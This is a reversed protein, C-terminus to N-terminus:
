LLALWSSLPVPTASSKTRWQICFARPTPHCPRPARPTCRVDKGIHISDGQVVVSIMFMGGGTEPAAPGSDESETVSSAFTARKGAKQKQNQTDFAAAWEESVDAENFGKKVALLLLDNARLEVQSLTAQYLDQQSVDRKLAMEALNQQSGVAHVMNSAHLPRGDRQGGVEAGFRDILHADHVLLGELTGGSKVKVTRFDLDGVGTQNLGGLKGSIASDRLLSSMAEELKAPEIGIWDSDHSFISAATPSHSADDPDHLSSGQSGHASTTQARPITLLGETGSLRAGQEPTGWTRHREQAVVEAAVDVPKLHQFEGSTRGKSGAASGLGYDFSNRRSHRRSQVPSHQTSPGAESGAELRNILRQADTIPCLNFDRCVGPLHEMAGVFFLVDGQTLIMGPDIAQMHKGSSQLSALFLGELGRLGAEQVTKGVVPSDALVYAGVMFDYLSQGGESKKGQKENPNPLLVQSFLLIYTLGVIAVPMGVIGLEFLTLSEEAGYRDKVQGAVVLNTSTGILTCTGGLISAYSLPIFLQSPAINVKACWSTLVPIMIAIVPTNNFFGSIIATPLLVRLQAFVISSPQGLARSFMSDLGGTDSVGAAVVFLIVVTLLSENSFGELGDEVPIIGAVLLIALGATMVADPPAVNRMLLVICVALVLVTFIGEWLAM